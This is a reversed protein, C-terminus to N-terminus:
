PPPEAPADAALVQAPALGILLVLTLAWALVKKQMQQM